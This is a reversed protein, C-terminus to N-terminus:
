EGVQLEKGEKGNWAGGGGAPLLGAQRRIRLQVVVEAVPQAQAATVRERVAAVAGVHGGGFSQGLTEEVQVAEPLRINRAVEALLSNASLHLM